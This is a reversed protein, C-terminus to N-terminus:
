RNIQSKHINLLSTKFRQLHYIKSKMERMLAQYNEKGKLWQSLATQIPEM